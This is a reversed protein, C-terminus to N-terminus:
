SDKLPPKKKSALAKIANIHRQSAQGRKQPAAYSELGFSPSGSAAIAKLIEMGFEQSNAKDPMPTGPQMKKNNRAKAARGSAVREIHYAVIGTLHNKTLAHLLKPDEYTWAIIQQRAKTANGGYLKLAQKVRQEAYELSM